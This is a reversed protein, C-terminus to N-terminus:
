AWCTLCFDVRGRSSGENLSALMTHIFIWIEVFLAVEMGRRLQGM